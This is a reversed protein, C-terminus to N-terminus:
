EHLLFKSKRKPLLRHVAERPTNAIDYNVFSLLLLLGVLFCLVPLMITGVPTPVLTDIARWWVAGGYIIGFLTLGLGVFLELSALTFDRLFYNYFIRSLFNRSHKYAFDWLIRSVQLNSSEEKYVADMPIDLVKARLIGLNFLMDSEFFFRNSVKGPPIHNLVSAHIATFGNNVDFVTWYGTSLKTL